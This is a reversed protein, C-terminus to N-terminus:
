QGREALSELSTVGIDKKAASYVKLSDEGALV